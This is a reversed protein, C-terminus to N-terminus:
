LTVTTVVVWSRLLETGASPLVNVARWKETNDGGGGGGECVCM